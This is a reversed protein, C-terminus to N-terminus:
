FIIQKVNHKKTYSVVRVNLDRLLKAVESCIDECIDEQVFHMFAMEKDKFTRSIDLMKKVIWQPRIKLSLMIEKEEIEQRLMDIWNKLSLGKYSEKDNMQQYEEVLEKFLEEKEMIEEYLYGMAYEPIDVQHYSIGMEELVVAFKTKSFERMDFDFDFTVYRIKKDSLFKRLAGMDGPFDDKRKKFMYAVLDKKSPKLELVEVM